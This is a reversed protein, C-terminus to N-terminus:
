NRSYACADFCARQMLGTDRPVLQIAGQLWRAASDLDGNRFALVALENWVLPDTSCIAKAQV